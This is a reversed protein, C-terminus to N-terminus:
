NKVCSVDSRNSNERLVSLRSFEDDRVTREIMELKEDASMQYLLIRERSERKQM